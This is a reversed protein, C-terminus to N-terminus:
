ELEEYFQELFEEMFDHRESALKIATDTNMLDKLKLLKEYFHHITSTKGHRYEEVTMNERVTYTPDFIAQGKSGAYTFARAIGIAGIADLRDADQVVEAEKTRVRQKKGGKFSITQVIELVQQIVSDSVGEGELFYNIQNIGEEENEVVKDDALDHLLAALEVVFINAKEKKAIAVANKWVREIHSWDHGSGEGQLQLKVMQVTNEIIMENNM